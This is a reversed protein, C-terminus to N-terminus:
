RRDERRANLLLIGSAVLLGAGMVVAALAAERGHLLTSLVVAAVPMCAIMLKHKSRETM